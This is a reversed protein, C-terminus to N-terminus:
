VVDVALGQYAPFLAGFRAAADCRERGDLFAALDEVHVQVGAGYAAVLDDPIGREEWLVVTGAGDVTLAIEIVQVESSDADKTNVLLRHPPQCAEIRGTGEWGSAFLRARYEGGPRLDGEVEGYWVALRAPDTLASWVEEPAADFRDRIRVVGKGGTSALRGLIRDVENANSM